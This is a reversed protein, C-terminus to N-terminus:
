ALEAPRQANTQNARWNNNNSNNYETPMEQANVHPSESRLSGGPGGGGGLQAMYGNSSTTYYNGFSAVPQYQSGGAVMQAPSLPLPKNYNLPAPWPSPETNSQHPQPPVGYSSSLHYNQQSTDGYQSMPSPMDSCHSAAALGSSSRYPQHLHEQPRPQSPNPTLHGNYSCPQGNTPWQQTYAGGGLTPPTYIGDMGCSISSAPPTYYQSSNYSSPAPHVASNTSSARSHSRGKAKGIMTDVLKGHSKSLTKKVFSSMLFNCKLEVDERLYLGSAPAGLGLEVPQPPEGPLNGAITWRDRIDLGMPAYCHTQLGDPMDHFACSYTVEGKVKGGPLYEIKDTVSYWTCQQEGDLAHSPTDIKHREIVLPNLDIMELHDHLFGLAEDRTMSSPLPSINTFTTRKSM